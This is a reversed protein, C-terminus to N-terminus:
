LVPNFNADGAQVHADNNGALAPKIDNFYDVRPGFEKQVPEYEKNRDRQQIRNWEKSCEPSCTLQNHNRPKFWTDCGEIVCLRSQRMNLM